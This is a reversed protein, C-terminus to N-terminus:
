ITTLEKAETETLIRNYVRTDHVKGEFYNFTGTNGAFTLDSLNESITGILSTSVINGNVYCCPSSDGSVVLNHKAM